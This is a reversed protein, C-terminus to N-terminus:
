IAIWGANELVKLIVGGVLLASWAGREKTMLPRAPKSAKCEAKELEIQRSVEKEVDKSTIIHKFKETFTATFAILTKDVKGLEGEVGDLKGEVGDLRNEINTIDKATV